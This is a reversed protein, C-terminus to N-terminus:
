NHVAFLARGCQQLTLLTVCALRHRSVVRRNSINWRPRAQHLNLPRAPETTICNTIVDRISDRVRRSFCRPRMSLAIGASSSLTHTHTLSLSLSLSLSLHNPNSRLNLRPSITADQSFLPSRLFTVCGPFTRARSWCGRINERLSVSGTPGQLNKGPRLSVSPNIPERNREGIISKTGQLKMATTTPVPM